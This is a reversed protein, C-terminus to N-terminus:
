PNHCNRQILVPNQKKLSSLQEPTSIRKQLNEIVGIAFLRCEAEFKIVASHEVTDETKLKTIIQQVVLKLMKPIINKTKLTLTQFTKLLLIWLVIKKFFISYSKFVNRINEFMFQVIPKDEHCRCWTEM